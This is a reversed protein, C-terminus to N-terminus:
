YWSREGKKFFDTRKLQCSCAFIYFALSLSPSCSTHIMRLLVGILRLFVSLDERKKVVLVPFYGVDYYVLVRACPIFQLSFVFM